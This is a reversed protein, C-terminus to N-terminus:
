EFINNEPGLVDFDSWDVGWFSENRVAKLTQKKTIANFYPNSLSEHSTEPRSNPGGPDILSSKLGFKPQNTSTHCHRCFFQMSPWLIYTGLKM